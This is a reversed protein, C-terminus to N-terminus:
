TLLHMHTGILVVINLVHNLLATNLGLAHQDIAVLSTYVVLVLVRLHTAIFMLLSVIIVSVVVVVVIVLGHL